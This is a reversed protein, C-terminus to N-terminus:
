QNVPVCDRNYRVDVVGTTAIYTRTPPSYNPGRYVSAFATAKFNGAVCPTSARAVVLRAHAVTNTYTAWVIWIGSSQLRWLDTTLTVSQPAVTGTCTIRGETLIAALSFPSHVVDPYDVTLGCNIAPPPPPPDPCGSSSAILGGETLHDCNPEALAVNATLLMAAAVVGVALVAALRRSLYRRM